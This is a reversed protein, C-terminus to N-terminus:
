AGLAHARLKEIRLSKFDNLLCDVSHEWQVQLQM